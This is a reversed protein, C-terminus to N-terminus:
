PWRVKVPQSREKVNRNATRAHGSVWVILWDDDRLGNTAAKLAAKCAERTADETLLTTAEIGHERWMEAAFTADFECDPLQGSWGDLAKPDVRDWGICVARMVRGTSEVAPGTPVASDDSTTPQATSCGCMSLLLLSLLRANM